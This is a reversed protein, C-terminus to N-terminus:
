RPLRYKRMVRGTGSRRAARGDYVAQVQGADIAKKLLQRVTSEALDGCAAVLDPLTHHEGDALTATIREWAASM